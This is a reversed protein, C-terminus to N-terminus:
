CEGKLGYKKILRLLYYREIGLTRATRTRNGKHETLAARIVDRLALDKRDALTQAKVAMTSVAM